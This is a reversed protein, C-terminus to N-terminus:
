ECKTQGKLIGTFASYPKIDQMIKFGGAPKLFNYLAAYTPLSKKLKLTGAAWSAAMVKWLCSGLSYALDEVMERLLSSVKERRNCLDPHPGLAQIDPFVDESNSCHHLPMSQM